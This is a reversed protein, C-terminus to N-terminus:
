RLNHGPGNPSPTAAAVGPIALAIGAVVMVALLRKM